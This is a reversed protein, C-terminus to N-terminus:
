NMIFKVKSRNFELMKDTKSNWAASGGYHVSNYLTSRVVYSIGCLKHIDYMVNDAVSKEVYHTGYFGDHPLFGLIGKGFPSVVGQLLRPIAWGDTVFGKKIIMLFSIYSSTFQLQWDRTMKVNQGNWDKISFESIDKLHISGDAKKVEKFDTHKLKIYPRWTPLASMSFTATKGM